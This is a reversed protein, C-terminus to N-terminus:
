KLGAYYIKWRQASVAQVTILMGAHGIGCFYSCQGKWTGPKSAEFWTHNIRGPIADIKPGLSPVWWEHQVDKSTIVLEIARGAPVILVAPNSPQKGNPYTYSFSYQQARTHIVMAGSPVGNDSGSLNTFTYGALGVLILVPIITWGLELRTSGHVQPPEPEVEGRRERFRIATYVLWGGVLVFITICVGLAAHYVRDMAGAAPGAPNNFTATDALAPTAQIALAMLAGATALAFTRLRRIRLEM